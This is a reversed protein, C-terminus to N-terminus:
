ATILASGHSSKKRRRGVWFMITIGPSKQKHRTLMLAKYAGFFRACIAQYMNLVRESLRIVPENSHAWHTHYYALQKAQQYLAEAIEERGYGINVCWLGAFADILEAGNKEKIRIGKGGTIIHPDGLSGHAFARLDTNPHFVSRRDIEELPLNHHLTQLTM